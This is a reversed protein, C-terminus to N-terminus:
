CSFCGKKTEVCEQKVKGAMTMREVYVIIKPLGNEESIFNTSRKRM